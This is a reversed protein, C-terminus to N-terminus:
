SMTKSQKLNKGVRNM